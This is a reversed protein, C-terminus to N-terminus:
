GYPKGETRTQCLHCSFTALLYPVAVLLCLILCLKSKGERM